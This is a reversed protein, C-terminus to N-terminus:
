RSVLDTLRDIVDQDGHGDYEHPPDMVPVNFLDWYQDEYHYSIQGAPLEAVVIFWGGGFCLEGDAHHRSKHVFFKGHLGWENFLAANLVRRHAYLEDFTHFGDSTSGNIEAM